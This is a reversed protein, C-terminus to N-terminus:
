WVQQPPHAAFTSFRRRADASYDSELRNRLSKHPCSIDGVSEFVGPFCASRTSLMQCATVRESVAIGKAASMTRVCPTDCLSVSLVTFLKAAGVRPLAM